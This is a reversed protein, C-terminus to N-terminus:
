YPLEKVVSICESRRDQIEQVRLPLPISDDDAFKKGRAMALAVGPNQGHDVTGTFLYEALANEQDQWTAMAQKGSQCNLNGTQQYNPACEESVIADNEPILESYMGWCYAVQLEYYGPIPENQGLAQPAGLMILIAGAAIKRGIQL